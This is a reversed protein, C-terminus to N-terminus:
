LILNSVKNKISEKLNKLNRDIICIQSSCTKFILGIISGLADQIHNKDNVDFLAAQNIIDKLFVVMQERQVLMNHVMTELESLSAVDQTEKLKTLNDKNLYGNNEGIVSIFSEVSEDLAMLLDRATKLGAVSTATTTTLNIVVVKLNSLTEPDRKLSAYVRNKKEEVPLDWVRSFMSDFVDQNFGKPKFNLSEELLRLRGLLAAYAQEAPTKFECKEQGKVDKNIDLRCDLPFSEENKTTKKFTCGLVSVSLLCMVMCRIKMFHNMLM